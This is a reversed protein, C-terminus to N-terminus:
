QSQLYMRRKAEPFREIAYRLMTRPMRSAYKKLFIEETELSRKGVERLMWGVAKHILDHKDDQLLASISLTSTFDNQGIAYLTSVIAIRRDWLNKSRALMMLTKQDKGYLYHGLIHPASTDVLDWNNIYARNKLYLMAIRKQQATSGRRYQGVLIILATLRHEHIKSQLLKQIDGFPLDGYRRAVARQEPVTIGLFIDGEGYEGPGTKFFRKSALAKQPHAYAKLERVLAHYASM